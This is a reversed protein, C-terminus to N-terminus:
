VAQGAAQTFGRFGEVSALRVHAHEVFRALLFGVLFEDNGQAGLVLDREDLHGVSLHEALPSAEAHQVAFAVGPLDDVARADNNSVPTLLRLLSIYQQVVELGLLLASPPPHHAVHSQPTTHTPTHRRPRYHLIAICLRPTPQ